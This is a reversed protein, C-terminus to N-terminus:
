RPVIPLTMCSPRSSAHFVHQTALCLDAFSATSIDGAHGPNRDYMPFNSSAIELRICHGSKFVNGTSGVAITYEYVRGPETLTTRELGARYRARIIGDCLNIARGDPYVEVLKATFDTDSASSAAFLTVTVPGIVEVDHTLRETTYVLVDNRYEVARQDAPGMPSLAPFCCSHGGLSQVPFHPDHVYVDPPEDGPPDQSLTGDGNLSNALGNSHLYYRTAQARALPWENETRWRNEGMVFLRVPPEDLAGNDTAKLWHDLWHLQASDILNRAEPGFDVQGVSPIWPMHWWPGIILHQSQRTQESEAHRRIGEFNRLTGELFIDYWGGIHLAPVAFRDYRTQLSWPQWYGDWTPHSLWDYFYPALGDQLPPFDSLPMFGHWNAIGWMTDLLEMERQPLGRRRATDMALFVAWYSNFALSFSGGQYAGYDYYDSTTFGPCICVLHPPRQVAGLLQTAGVYSFGYMGVKGNTDPLAAAWEVTDYGDHAEDRFPYFEGESMGRGRTDQVVVVYGHSAYWSPHAYTITEAATKDYPLRMLIVPYRGPADPRYVDAYLTIGDRMKAPVDKELLVPLTDSM